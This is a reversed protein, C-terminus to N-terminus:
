PIPAEITVPENFASFTTTMNITTNGEGGGLPIPLGPVTAAIAESDLPIAGTIVVQRILSDRLGIYVHTELAQEADVVGATDNTVGLLHLVATGDDLTEEGVVTLAMSRVADTLGTIEMPSTNGTANGDSKEWQGTQAVSVYADTGINIMEMELAIFGLSVALNGRMRDPAQYDGEFRFPFTATLGDSEIGIEAEMRFHVFDLGNMVDLARSLLEQSNTDADVSLSRIGTLPM